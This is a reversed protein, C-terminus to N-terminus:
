PLGPNRSNRYVSSLGPAANGAKAPKEPDPFPYAANAIWFYSRELMALTLVGVMAAVVVYFGVRDGRAEIHADREDKRDVDDASGEGTMEARIAAGIALAIAGVINGVIMAVVAIILPRQYAIQDIPVQGFVDKIAWGYWLTALMTVVGGVWTTREEHSM